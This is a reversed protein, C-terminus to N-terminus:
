FRKLKNSEDASLFNISTQYVITTDKFAPRLCVTDRHPYPVYCYAKGCATCVCGAHDNGKGTIWVNELSDQGGCAPCNKWKIPYLKIGRM